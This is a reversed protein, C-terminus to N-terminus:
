VAAADPHRWVVELLDKMSVFAVLSGQDDVIPLHRFKGRMMVGLADHVSSKATLTEAKRYIIAGVTTTAPDRGVALVRRVVDGESFVGLLTGSADVVPAAFVGHHTFLMVADMVTNLEVLSHIHRGMEPLQEIRMTM